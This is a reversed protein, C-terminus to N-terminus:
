MSLRLMAEEPIMEIRSTKAPRYELGSGIRKRGRPAETPVAIAKLPMHLVDQGDSVDMVCAPYQDCSTHMSIDSVNRMQGSQTDSSGDLMAIHHPAHISDALPMGFTYDPSFGATLDSLDIHSTDVVVQDLDSSWMSPHLASGVHQSKVDQDNVPYSMHPVPDQPKTFLAANPWAIGAKRLLNQPAHLWKFTVVDKVPSFHPKSDAGYFYGESPCVTIRGVNDAVHLQLQNRIAKHFPPFLLQKVPSNFVQHPFNGDPNLRHVRYLMTLPTGRPLSSIYTNVTPSLGIPTVVGFCETRFEQIPTGSVQPFLLIDWNEFRM